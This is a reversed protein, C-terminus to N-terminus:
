LAIGVDSRNETQYTQKNLKVEAVFELVVIDTTLIFMDPNFHLEGSFHNHAPAFPGFGIDAPNTGAAGRPRLAHHTGTM